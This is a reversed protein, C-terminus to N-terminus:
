APATFKQEELTIIRREHDELQRRDEAQQHSGILREERGTEAEKAFDNIAELVRSETKALQQGFEEKIEEKVEQGNIKIEVQLRREVDDIRQSLKGLGSKLEKKTAFRQLDGKTAPSDLNSKKM